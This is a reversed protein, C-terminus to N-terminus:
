NQYYRWTANLRPPFYIFGRTLGLIISRVLNRVAHLQHGWFAKDFKTLNNEEIAHIEDLVYKHCRIAGQGFIMLTRTLINAGEVTVGISLSM